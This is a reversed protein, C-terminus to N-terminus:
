ALARVLIFAVIGVLAVANTWVIADVTLRLDLGTQHAVLITNLGTPMAALLLYPDPLDIVLVSFAIVVAPVVLMRVGVLVAVARTLPPPMRLVGDEAEDALTIGVVTFGLAALSYAIWQAPTELWEPSWAEPALIAVVGVLILPNGTLTAAIHRPLSRDHREHREDGLVAGTMFSGVLFLPLSVLADYAVAQQFEQHTFLAACLPLGLFGTNTQITCVIAAGTSRDDLRLPGRGLVFMAVGSLSVCVLGLLLGVGAGAAVDLHVLSSWMLIPILVWLMSRVIWHRVQRATATSRRELAVGAAVALLAILVIAIM